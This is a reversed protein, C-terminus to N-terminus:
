QYTFKFKKLANKIDGYTVGKKALIERFKELHEGCISARCFDGEKELGKILNKKVEQM